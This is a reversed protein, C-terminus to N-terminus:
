LLGPILTSIWFGTFFSLINAAATYVATRVPQSKTKSFRPMAFIYLLSEIVYVGFELVIYMLIFAIRGRNYNIINLLLNLIVQTVANAAAIFILQRKKRYGFFWALCLEIALTIVVRLLFFFIEPLYNYNKEAILERGAELSAIDFGQMNIEFYSDFAYRTVAASSAFVDDQPFYLLIKFENPPYYTWSLTNEGDCRAAWQLFYYGEADNYDTFKRWVDEPVGYLDIAEFESEGDWVSYPGTSDTKSLLTGYCPEGSLNKFTVVVSPKPGTDASAALPLILAFIFFCFLVTFLRKKLGFVGRILYELISFCAKTIFAGPINM